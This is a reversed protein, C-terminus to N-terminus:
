NRLSEIAEVIDELTVDRSLFASGLSNTLVFRIQGDSFKKDHRLATLIADTSIESPLHTPLDFAKLAQLIADTAEPPLKARKESIHCAAILGLSIAEGHWLKGYGAAQEIGHGITHGFNLLARLGSQEYVDASVIEAKIQANRCILREWEEANECKLESLMKVDRIAAHKIIEAFGENRERAPLTKLLAPDIIVVKPQHFAGVLNKGLRSNIGTKGGIASDVQAVISTPIQVIPIGRFYVAAVFGALDGVVGGGLAVVASSRDFGLSIMDDSIKEVAAFSKSGEGPTISIIAPSFGTELLSDELMKGYLAGVNADTIIAIRKSSLAERIIKGASHLLGTGVHIPYNGNATTVPITTSM